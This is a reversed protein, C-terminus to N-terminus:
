SVVMSSFLVMGRALANPARRKINAIPVKRGEPSLYVISMKHILGCGFAIDLHHHHRCATLSRHLLRHHVCKKYQPLAKQEFIKRILWGIVWGNVIRQCDTSLGCAGVARKLHAGLWVDDQTVSAWEFAEPRRRACGAM